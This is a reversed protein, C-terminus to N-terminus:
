SVPDAEKPEVGGGRGLSRKKFKGYGRETKKEKEREREERTLIM